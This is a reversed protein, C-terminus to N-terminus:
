DPKSNKIPNDHFFVTVYKHIAQELATNDGTRLEEVDVSALSAISIAPSLQAPVPSTNCANNQLPLNHTSELPVFRFHQTTPDLKLAQAIRERIKRVFELLSESRGELMGNWADRM